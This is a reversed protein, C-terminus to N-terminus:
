QAHVGGNTDVYYEQLEKKLEQSEQIMQEKGEYANKEIAIDVYENLSAILRQTELATEFEARNNLQLQSVLAETYAHAVVALMEPPMKLSTQKGSSWFSIVIGQEGNQKTKPAGVEAALLLEKANTMLARIMAIELSRRYNPHAPDQTQQQIRERLEIGLNLIAAQKLGPNSAAEPNINTKNMLELLSRYQEGMKTKAELIKIEQETPLDASADPLTPEKMAVIGISIVLIPALLEIGLFNIKQYPLAEIKASM